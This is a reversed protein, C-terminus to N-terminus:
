LEFTNRNDINIKLPPMYFRRDRKAYYYLSKLACEKMNQSQM